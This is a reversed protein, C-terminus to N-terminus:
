FPLDNKAPAPAEPTPQANISQPGSYRNADKFDDPEPAPATEREGKSGLLEMDTVIIETVYRTKGESDEYSRTDLEGVVLLPTGKKVFEEVVGALGSRKVVINHWVTKEEVERGDATKFGRKTTALSFQAVKGGDKFTTIKPEGGVNGRLVVLNM